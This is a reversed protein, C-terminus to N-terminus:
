TQNVNNTEAQTYHHGICITNYIKERERRGTSETGLTALKELNDM